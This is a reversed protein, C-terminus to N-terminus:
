RQRLDRARHTDTDPLEREVRWKVVVVLVLEHRSFSTKGEKRKRVKNSQAKRFM